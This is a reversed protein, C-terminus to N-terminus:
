KKMTWEPHDMFHIQLRPFRAPVPDSRVLRVEIIIINIIVAIVKLVSIALHGFDFVLCPHNIRLCITKMTTLHCASPSKSCSLQRPRRGQLLMREAIPLRILLVVVVLWWDAVMM